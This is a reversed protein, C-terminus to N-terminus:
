DEDLDKFSGNFTKGGRIRYKLENGQTYIFIEIHGEGKKMCEKVKEDLDNYFNM